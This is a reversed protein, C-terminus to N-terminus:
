ESRRKLIRTHGLDIRKGAMDVVINVPIMDLIQM